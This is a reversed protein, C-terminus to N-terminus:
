READIEGAPAPRRAVLAQDIGHVDELLRGAVGALGRAAGVDRGGLLDVEGATRREDVGADGEDAPGRGEERM